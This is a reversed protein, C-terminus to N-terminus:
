SVLRPTDSLDATHRLETIQAEFRLGHAAAVMRDLMEPLMPIAIPSAAGLARLAGILAAQTKVGWEGTAHLGPVQQQFAQLNPFGLADLAAQRDAATVIPSVANVVWRRGARSGMNVVRDFLMGLARDTNFGLSAAFPLNRDLYGEIAVENQAARFATVAGAKRFRELWPEQWLLTGDVPQLREEPTAATTVRVLEDTAPGFIARLQEADRRQCALLVRGLAGSRQTFQALGWHLGHHLRQYAAHGPEEYESDPNVASYPDPGAILTAVPLVIKYKDAVTLPSAGTEPAELAYLHSGGGALEGEEDGAQNLSQYGDGDDYHDDVMKPGGGAGPRRGLDNGPQAVPAAGTSLESGGYRNSNSPRRRLLAPADEFGPPEVGARAAV